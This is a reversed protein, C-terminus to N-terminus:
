RASQSPVQFQLAAQVRRSLLTPLTDLIRSGFSKKRVSWTDFADLRRALAKTVTCALKRDLCCRSSMPQYLRVKTDVRIHSKWVYKELLTMCNRAIGIHRLIESESSGDDTTCAGLYTFENVVEVESSGVHVVQPVSDIDGICQIKTEAWNV